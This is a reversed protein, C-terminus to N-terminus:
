RNLAYLASLARALRAEDNRIFDQEFHNGQWHLLVTTDGDLGLMLSDQLTRIGNAACDTTYSGCDAQYFGPAAVHLNPAANGSDLSTVRLDQPGDARNLRVHIAVRGTDAETVMYLEDARGDGDFDGSRSLNQDARNLTNLDPMLTAAGALSSIMAGGTMMVALVSGLIVSRMRM